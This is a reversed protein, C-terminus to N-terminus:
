KRVEHIMEMLKETDIDFPSFDGILYPNKRLIANFEKLAKNLQDNIQWYKKKHNQEYHKFSLDDFGMQGNVKIIAGCVRCKGKYIM